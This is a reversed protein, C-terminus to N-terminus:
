HQYSGVFSGCNPCYHDVNNCSEVCYPVCVCPWCGFLCLLFAMLHTRMSPKFEIRTIVQANCSRCTYHTPSSGVQPGAIIVAPVVTAQVVQPGPTPPPQSDYPPPPPHYVVKEGSLQATDSM